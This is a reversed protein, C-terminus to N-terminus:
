CSSLYSVSWHSGEVFLATEFL